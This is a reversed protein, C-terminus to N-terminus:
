KGRVFETFVDLIEKHGASYGAATDEDPLGDHEVVVTTSNGEAVFRVRVTSIDAWEAVEWTYAIETPPDWSVVTGITHENGDAFREFFRGGEHPEFMIQDPDVGEPAFSYNYQGRRPWWENIQNVYANFTTMQDTAVSIKESVVPM